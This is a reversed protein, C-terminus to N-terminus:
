RSSYVINGGLLTYAALGKLEWDMFPTNHGQSIISHATPTWYQQPDFICIDAASGPSLTGADIGLIRAPMYTLRAIVDPLTMIGDDVLRLSLPLLTELGSIGTATASFPALKADPEHPQHDSCIASLTARALGHRLGDCDRQTRLPPRVHCMSDFDLIDLETLHLHHASVDATVPLGDFQARAIMQVARATTIMCFHARIGIQEILALNSAVAVTEAAEPIGPLGLRTSVAGEHMCGNNSLSTDEAHLFITLDHTAAYEMARRVSILNAMPRMANSVGVCGADKLAKMESIQQGELRQTLAGLPVIRVIGTEEARRRVLTAVAPTDIVPDTDPPCCVTTIGSRAAARSESAITAKHEQGPERFHARLDIFGPCVIYGSADIERDPTFADPATGLAIINGDAIYIDQQSDINNVPDIIRGNFIRLRV